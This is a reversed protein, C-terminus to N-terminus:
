EPAHQTGTGTNIKGGKLKRAAVPASTTAVPGATKGKVEGRQIAALMDEREKISMKSYKSKSSIENHHLNRMFLLFAKATASGFKGDDFKVEKGEVVFHTVGTKASIISQAKKVRPDPWKYGKSKFFGAANDISPSNDKVYGEAIAGFEAWTLDKWSSKFKPHKKINPITNLFENKFIKFVALFAPDKPLTIRKFQIAENLKWNEFNYVM